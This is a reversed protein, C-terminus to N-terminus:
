LSLKHPLPISVKEQNAEDGDCNEDEDEDPAEGYTSLVEKLRKKDINGTGQRQVRRHVFWESLLNSGSKRLRRSVKHCRGHADSSAVMQKKTDLGSGKAEWNMTDALDAKTVWPTTKRSSRRQLHAPMWILIVRDM